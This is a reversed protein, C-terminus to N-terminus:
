TIALESQWNLRTQNIESNGSFVQIEKPIGLGKGTKHTPTGCLITNGTRLTVSWQICHPKSNPSTFSMPSSCSLSQRHATTCMGDLLTSISGLLQLSALTSSFYNVICCEELKNNNNNNIIIIIIIIIIIKYKLWSSVCMWVRYTSPWCSLLM